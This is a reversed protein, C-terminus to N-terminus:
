RNDARLFVLRARYSQIYASTVGVLSAIMLLHVLNDTPGTAPLPATGTRPATKVPAQSPSPTKSPTPQSTTTPASSSAPSKAVESSPAPKEGSKQVTYIGGIVLAALVVAVVAFTVVSGGEKTRTFNMM